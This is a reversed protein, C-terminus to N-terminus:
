AADDGPCWRSSPATNKQKNPPRVMEKKSMGIIAPSRASDPTVYDPACSDVGISARFKYRM